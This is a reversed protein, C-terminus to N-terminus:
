EHRFQALFLQVRQGFLGCDISVVVFLLEAAEGHHDLVVQLHGELGRDQADHHCDVADGLCLGPDDRVAGRRVAGPSRRGQGAAARAVAL